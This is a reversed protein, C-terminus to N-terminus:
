EAKSTLQTRGAGAQWVENDLERATKGLERAKSLFREEWKAYATPNQPTSKPADPWWQRLWRLVHVDLAAHQETPRTWLIFFRSTKPGIGHITELQQPTVRVLDIQRNALEYCARSLKNYNGTKVHRACEDIVEVTLCRMMEFPTKTKRFSLTKRIADIFLRTKTDAFDASKGAVIVSYILRAEREFQTLELQENM